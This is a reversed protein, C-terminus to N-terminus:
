WGENRCFENECGFRDLDVCVLCTPEVEVSVWGVASVDTGCIAVDYDCCVIHVIEADDETTTTTSTPLLGFKVPDRRPSASPM